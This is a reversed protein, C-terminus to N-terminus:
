TSLSCEASPLDASIINTHEAFEANMRRDDTLRQPFSVSTSAGRRVAISSCHIRYEFNM